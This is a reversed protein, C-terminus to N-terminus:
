LELFLLAGIIAWSIPVSDLVAVDVANIEYLVAVALYALLHVLDEVLQVAPHVGRKTSWRFALVILEASQWVLDSMLVPLILFSMVMHYAVLGWISAAVLLILLRIALRAWYWGPSFPVLRASYQGPAQM